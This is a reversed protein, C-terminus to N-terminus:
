APPTPPATDIAAAKKVLDQSKSQIQDLLAQDAPTITGASNQLQTILQDLATIGDKIQDLKQGVQDLQAQELNVWDSIASMIKTTATELDHKTALGLFSRLTESDVNITITM